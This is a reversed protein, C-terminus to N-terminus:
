VRAIIVCQLYKLRKLPKIDFILTLEIEFAISSYVFHSVATETLELELNHSPMGSTKLIQMLTNMFEEKALHVPSLNIAFKLKDSILNQSLWEVYQKSVNQLVWEDISIIFGNKEAIPIFDDPMILGYEPHQWRLLVEMGAPQKSPLKYQPQYVMYFQNQEAAAPESSLVM